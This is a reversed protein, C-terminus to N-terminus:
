GAPEWRQDDRERDCETLLLQRGAGDCTGSALNQILLSGDAM